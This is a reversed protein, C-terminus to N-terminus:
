RDSRQEIAKPKPLLESTYSSITDLIDEVYHSETGSHVVFLQNLPEDLNLLAVCQETTLANEGISFLIDERTSYEFAHKLIDAPPLGTLWEEYKTQEKALKEYLLNNLTEQLLNEM